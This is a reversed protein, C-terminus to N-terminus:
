HGPRSARGHVPLPKPTETSMVAGFCETLYAKLNLASNQLPLPNTNVPFDNGEPSFPLAIMKKRTIFTYRLFHAQM